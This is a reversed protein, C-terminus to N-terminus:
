EKEPTSEAPIALPGKHGHRKRTDPVKKLEEAPKDEEAIMQDVVQLAGAIANLNDMMQQRAQLLEEKKKLLGTKDM